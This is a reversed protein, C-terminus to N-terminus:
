KWSKLVRICWTLSTSNGATAKLKDYTQKQVGHDIVWPRQEKSPLPSMWGAIKLGHQHSMWIKSGHAGQFLPATLESTRRRKIWLLHLVPGDRREFEHQEPWVSPTETRPRSLNEISKPVFSVEM